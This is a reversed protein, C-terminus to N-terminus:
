REKSNHCFDTLCGLRKQGLLGAKLNFIKVKLLFLLSVVGKFCQPIHVRAETREM